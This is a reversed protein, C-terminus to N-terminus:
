KKLLCIIRLMLISSLICLFINGILYSFSFWKLDQCNVCKGGTDQMFVFPFGIRTLGDHMGSFDSVLLTSGVFLILSLILMRKLNLREFFATPIKNDHWGGWIESFEDETIFDSENLDLEDLSQDYLMSEGQQPNESSLFVLGESKKEIQRVAKGNHFHIYFLVNEEEWYKKVFFDQM